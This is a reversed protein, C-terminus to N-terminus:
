WCKAPPAGLCLTTPTLPIISVRSPFISVPSFFVTFGRISSSVDPFNLVLRTLISLRLCQNIFLVDMERLGYLLFLSVYSAYFTFPYKIYPCVSYAFIVYYFDNFPVRVLCRRRASFFCILQYGQGLLCSFPSLFDQILDSSSDESEPFNTLPIPWRLYSSLSISFPFYTSSRVM